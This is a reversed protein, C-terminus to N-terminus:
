SEGTKKDSSQAAFNVKPVAQSLGVEPGMTLYWLTDITKHFHLGLRNIPFTSTMMIQIIWLYM